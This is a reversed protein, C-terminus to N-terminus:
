SSSDPTCHLLLLGIILNFDWLVQVTSTCHSKLKLLSTYSCDTSSNGEWSSMVSLDSILQQRRCSVGPMVSSSHCWEQAGFVSFAASCFWIPSIIFLYVSKKLKPYKSYKKVWVRSINRTLNMLLWLVRSKREESNSKIWLFHTRYYLMNDQGIVLSLDREAQCIIASFYLLFVLLVSSFSKVFLHSENMHGAASTTMSNMLLPRPPPWDARIYLVFLKVFVVYGWDFWLFLGLSGHLQAFHFSTNRSNRILQKQRIPVGSRWEVTETQWM